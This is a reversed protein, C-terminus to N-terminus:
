SLIGKLKLYIYTINSRSLSCILKVLGELADSPLHVRDGKCKELNLLEILKMGCWLISTVRNAIETLIFPVLMTGASM